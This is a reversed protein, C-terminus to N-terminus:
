IDFRKKLANYNQKIEAATLPKSYLRTIPIHGNWYRSYGGYEYKGIYRAFFASVDATWSFSAHDGGEAVGNVYFQMSTGSEQVFAVHYWTDSAFATDGYKWVAATRDWVAMKSNLLALWGANHVDEECGNFHQLTSASDTNFVYEATWGQNTDAIKIDTGLDIYDDTGDFDPQGTSDFSVNSVDINTTRKLDILSATASRTGNVFPTAHSKLEIQVESVEVYSDTGSTGGNYWLTFGVHGSPQSATGSNGLTGSWTIHETTTTTKSVKESAASYGLYTGAGSVNSTHTNTQGMMIWAFTGPSGVLVEVTASITVSQGAYARLDWTFSRWGQGSGAAGNFNNVILKFKKKSSDLVNYTGSWGGQSPADTTYNVTAEGPYFRTSTDNDAVGYGSDYAVVLADDILNPGSITGM